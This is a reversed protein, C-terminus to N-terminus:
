TGQKTGQIPQADERPRIDIFLDCDLAAAIRAVTSFSLDTKNITRSLSPQLVGLAAAIDGLTAGRLAAVAKILRIIDKNDNYKLVKGGMGAFLM